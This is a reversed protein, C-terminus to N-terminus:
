AEMRDLSLFRLAHTHHQEALMLAHWAQWTMCLEQVGLDSM